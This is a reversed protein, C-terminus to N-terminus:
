ETRSAHAHAMSITVLGQTTVIMQACDRQIACHGSKSTHQRVNQAILERIATIVIALAQDVIALVMNEQQAISIEM